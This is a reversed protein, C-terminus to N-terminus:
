PKRTGAAQPSRSKRALDASRLWRRLRFSRRSVCSSGRATTISGKWGTFSWVKDFVKSHSIRRLRALTMPITSRNKTTINLRRARSSCSLFVPMRPGAKTQMWWYDSFSRGISATGTPTSPAGSSRTLPLLRGGRRRLEDHSVDEGSMARPSWRDVLLREIEFDPKRVESGKIM